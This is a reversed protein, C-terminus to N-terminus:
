ISIVLSKPNRKIIKNSILILFNKAWSLVPIKTHTRFCQVTILITFVSLYTEYHALYYFLYTSGIVCWKDNCLTSYIRCIARCVTFISLADLKIRIPPLHYYWKLYFCYLFSIKQKFIHYQNILLINKINISVITTRLIHQAYITQVCTGEDRKPLYFM